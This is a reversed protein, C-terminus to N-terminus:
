CSEELNDFKDFYRCAPYYGKFILIHTFTELQISNMTSNLAMSYLEVMRASIEKNEAVKGFYILNGARLAQNEKELKEIKTQLRLLSNSEKKAQQSKAYEHLDNLSCNLYREKAIEWNAKAIRKRSQDFAFLKTSRSQKIWNLEILFANNSLANITIWDIPRDSFVLRHWWVVRAAKSYYGALSGLRSYFERASECGLSKYIETNKMEVEITNACAVLAKWGMPPLYNQDTSIVISKNELLLDFAEQESMEKEEPLTLTLQYM